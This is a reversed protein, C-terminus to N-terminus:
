EGFWYGTATLAGSLGAAAVSVTGAEPLALADGRVDTGIVLVVADRESANVLQHAVRDGPAWHAVDGPRLAVEEEVGERVQRLTPTGELVYVLEENATHWHLPSSRAGPSLRDRNIFVARAGAPRSLQRGYVGGDLSREPGAAVVHAPRDAVARVGRAAAAASAAAAVAEPEGLTGVQQLARLMVKGSDPYRCVENWQKDSLALFVADADSRNYFRHAVGTGPPYCVLEGARLPYERYDGQGGVLERVVLEGSLLFFHEEELLHDHLPCSSRGPELRELHAGLTKMPLAKLSKSHWGFRDAVRPDSPPDATWAMGATRLVNVPLTV